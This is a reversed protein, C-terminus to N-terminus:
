ISRALCVDRLRGVVTDWEAGVDARVARRAIRSVSTMAAEAIGAPHTPDVFIVDGGAAVERFVPLDTVVLPSGFHLAELTPLGFGEDLPVYITTRTNEYLWRLQGNTVHGLWVLDGNHSELDAAAISRGSDQSGGVVVLPCDASVAGTERLGNIATVLNKRVNLRGVALFFEDPVAPPREAQVSALESSVGLGIAAVPRLHPQLREIRAAEAKSSTTIRWARRLTLPMFRFYLKEAATFWEPHELFILDHVFAVSRNRKSFPAFNHVVLVDFSAKRALWPLEIANSLAQPWLRTVVISVNSPVDMADNLHKRRVAITLIDEPHRRVWTTVIERM